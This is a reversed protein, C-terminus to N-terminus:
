CGGIVLKLESDLVTREKKRKKNLEEMEGLLGRHLADIREVALSYPGSLYPGSMELFNGLCNNSM